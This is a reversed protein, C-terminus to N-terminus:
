VCFCTVSLHMVEFLVSQGMNHIIAAGAVIQGTVLTDLSSSVTMGPHLCAPKM